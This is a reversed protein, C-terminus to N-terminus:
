DCRNDQQMWQGGLERCIGALDMGSIEADDKSRKQILDMARDRAENQVAARGASDGRHYALPYSVAWSLAAGLALGGGIKLYDLISLM